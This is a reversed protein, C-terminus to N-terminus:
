LSCQVTTHVWSKNWVQLRYFGPVHMCFLWFHIPTYRQWSKLFDEPVCYADRSWLTCSCAPAFDVRSCWCIFSSVLFKMFTSTMLPNWYNIWLGERSTHISNFVFLLLTICSCFLPYILLCPWVLLPPDLLRFAHSIFTISGFQFTLGSVLVSRQSSGLNRWLTICPLVLHGSHLCSRFSSSVSDALNM